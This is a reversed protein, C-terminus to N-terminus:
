GCVKASPNSVMSSSVDSEPSPVQWFAGRDAWEVLDGLRPPCDVLNVYTPPASRANPASSKQLLRIVYTDSGNAIALSRVM